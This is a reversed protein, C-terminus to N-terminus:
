LEQINHAIVSIRSKSATLSLTEAVKKREKPYLELNIIKEGAFGPTVVGTSKAGPTRKHARISVKGGIYYNTKNTLIFSIKCPSKRCDSKIESVEVDKTQFFYLTALLLLVVAPLGFILPTKKKM